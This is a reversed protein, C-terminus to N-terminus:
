PRGGEANMLRTVARTLSKAVAGLSMGLTSAISRYTLGQARLYVCRRERDSLADIVSRIRRRRENRILWTEVDPAPDAHSQELTEDWPRHPPRRRITRLRKCALNHAVRFLWGTLNTQDRGLRLHLFLALFVEQVIDETENTELGFSRVYGMLQLAHRDFLALVAADAQVDPSAAAILSTDVISDPSLIREV